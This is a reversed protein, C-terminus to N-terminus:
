VRVERADTQGGEPLPVGIVVAAVTQSPPIGTIPVAEAVLVPGVPETGGASGDGAGACSDVVVAEAMAVGTPVPSADLSRLTTRVRGRSASAARPMAGAAGGGVSGSRGGRATRGRPGDARPHARGSSARKLGAWYPVPVAVLACVVGGVFLPVAFGLWIHPLLITLLTRRFTRWPACWGAQWHRRLASWLVPSANANWCAFFAGVIYVQFDPRCTLWGWLACQTPDRPEPRNYGCWGTHVPMCVDNGYCRERLFACAVGQASTATVAVAVCGHSAHLLECNQTCEEESTVNTLELLRPTGLAAGEETLRWASSGSFHYFILSSWDCTSYHSWGDLHLLHAVPDGHGGAAPLPLLLLLLLIPAPAMGLVTQM